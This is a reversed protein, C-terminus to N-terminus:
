SRWLRDGKPFCVRLFEEVQGTDLSFRVSDGGPPVDHGTRGHFDTGGTALLGLRGTLGALFATAHGSHVPYYVEVGRLGSDMLSRVLAELEGDTRRMLGPHALVPLGDAGAILEIARLAFLRTREVYAPRGRALYRDFAESHSSVLGNRYLVEAIHPRGVVGPGAVERVEEIDIRLGQEALKEVIRPNREERGKRVTELAQFLPSGERCLVSASTGPFYGLMHASGGGALDVSIELAPIFALGTESSREEAEPLGDMTDHDTLALVALERQCALDVLEAPSLSGDSATSHVHLDALPMDSRWDRFIIKGGFGHL